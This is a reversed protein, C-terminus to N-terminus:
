ARLSTLSAYHRAVEGRSFRTEFFVHTQRSLSECQITRDKVCATLREAGDKSRGRGLFFAAQQKSMPKTRENAPIRQRDRPETLQDLQTALKLLEPLWIGELNKLEDKGSKAGVNTLQRRAAKVAVTGGSGERDDCLLKAGYEAYLKDYFEIVHRVNRESRQISKRRAKLAQRSPLCKRKLLIWQAKGLQPNEPSVVARLYEDLHQVVKKEADPPGPCSLGRIEARVHKAIVRFEDHYM